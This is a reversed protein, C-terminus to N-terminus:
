CPPFIPQYVFPTVRAIAHIFQLAVESRREAEELVISKKPVPAVRGRPQAQEGWTGQSGVGDAEGM